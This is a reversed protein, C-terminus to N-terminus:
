QVAPAGSSIAPLRVVFESGRGVGESGAEITGGHSEIIAQTIWLGLGTGRQGGPNISYFPEFLRQLTAPELGRGDDTVRIEAWEAEQRVKVGVHGGETTAGIANILLNLVAQRLEGSDIVAEVPEAASM